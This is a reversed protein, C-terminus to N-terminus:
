SFELVKRYVQLLEEMSHDISFEEQVKHYANEGLRRCLETDALAKEIGQKLADGDKPQILIGTDGNSIMQPIGGTKSAVIACKYAMAELLVVPQGEFYTPLVFIDCEKLYKEKEEGKLWGLWTVDKSLLGM